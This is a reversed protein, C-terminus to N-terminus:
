DDRQDERKHARIAKIAEDWYNLMDPLFIITEIALYVILLIIILALGIWKM